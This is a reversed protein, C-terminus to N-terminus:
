ANKSIEFVKGDRDRGVVYFVVVWGSGNSIIVSSLRPLSDITSQLIAKLRMTAVTSMKVNANAAVAQKPFAATGVLSSANSCHM